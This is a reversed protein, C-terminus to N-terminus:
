LSLIIIDTMGIIEESKLIKQMSYSYFTIGHDSKYCFHLIESYLCTSPCTISKLLQVAVMITIYLAQRMSFWQTICTLNRIVNQTHIHTHPPTKICFIFCTTKFYFQKWYLYFKWHPYLTWKEKYQQFNSTFFPINHTLKHM